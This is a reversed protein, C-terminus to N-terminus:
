EEKEVTKAKKVREKTTYGTVRDLYRRFRKNTELIVEDPVNLDSKTSIIISKGDKGVTIDLLAIAGYHTVLHDGEWVPEIDFISRIEQEMTNKLDKVFGRKVPYEQM